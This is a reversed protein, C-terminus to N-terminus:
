KKKTDFISQEQYYIKVALRTFLGSLNQRNTRIVM